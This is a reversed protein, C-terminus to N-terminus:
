PFFSLFCSLFFLFFVSLFFSFPSLPSCMNLSSVIFVLVIHFLPSIQSCEFCPPLSSSFFSLTCVCIIQTLCCGRSLFLSVPSHLLSLFFSVPSFFSLPSLDSLSLPLPLLLLPPPPATLLASPSIHARQPVAETPCKVQAYCLPAPVNPQWDRRAARQARRQWSWGGLARSSLWARIRREGGEEVCM